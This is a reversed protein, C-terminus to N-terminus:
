QITAYQQTRIQRQALQPRRRQCGPQWALIPKTGGKAISRSAALMLSAVRWPEPYSTPTTVFATNDITLEIIPPPKTRAPNM